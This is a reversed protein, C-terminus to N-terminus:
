IFDSQKLGYYSMPDRQYAIRDVSLERLYIEIEDLAERIEKSNLAAEYHDENIETGMYYEYCTEFLSEFDNTELDDWFNDPNAMVLEVMREGIKKTTM